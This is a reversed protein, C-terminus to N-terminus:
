KVLVQFPLNDPCDCAAGVTWTGTMYGSNWSSHPSVPQVIKTRNASKRKQFRVVSRLVNKLLCKVADGGMEPLVSARHVQAPSLYFLLSCILSIPIEGRWKPSLLTGKCGFRLSAASSMELVLTRAKIKGHNQGTKTGRRNKMVLCSVALLQNIVCLSCIYPCCKLLRWYGGFHGRDVLLLPMRWSSTQASYWM